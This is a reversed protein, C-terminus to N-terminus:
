YRNDPTASMMSIITTDSIRL